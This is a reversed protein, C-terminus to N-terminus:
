QGDVIVTLKHIPRELCSVVGVRNGAADLRNTGLQIRVKRVRGDDSPIIEVVRALRWNSRHENQEHMIVVDGVKVDKKSSQWKRRSQLLAVYERRWREWFEDALAQVRRWRKSAYIDPDGFVGPPPLVSDKKMTLVHNPTLPLPGDPSELAEVSLPRSNVISMAEYFLTGLGSSSLCQGSRKLLGCLINRVTRILREWVGGMHSASPPNFRFVCQKKVLESVIKDRDLQKWAEKFERSAGVFNTGQDCWVQRINGRVSIVRRLGNIFADTSMDDLSEIHVARSALCTVILGYRKVYKRGDKVTFPGFCDMGCFSFPPAPEVREQPLDAMLQSAPVGRICLCKVCRHLVSMVARRIGLIWYGAARIKNITTARGQHAAEEHCCRIVLVTFHSERPLIIPHRQEVSDSSRKLRGGVRLTSDMRREANLEKMTRKISPSQEKFHEHQICTALRRETERLLSVEDLVIDKVALCKRVFVAMVKLMRGKSSFRACTNEFSITHSEAATTSLCSKVEVDHDPIDFVDNGKNMEVTQLFQPGELWTSQTLEDVSMGRSAYDAPNEESPVHNWQEPKSFDRIQQVRNAVFVHFRKSENQIYALVITSDTWFFHSMKAFDLEQQLFRAMKISLVAASLELRPITMYKMPAVRAKAVVLTSRVVNDKSIFRIYSCQGYGVTSADSFHHLEVTQEIDYDVPIFNRPITVQKIGTLEAIWEKWRAALLPPLEDDWGLGDKCLGQLILRGKLVFPALFGLPDYVSAITSLVGRRSNESAITPASFGLTDNEMSWQLGLTREVTGPASLTTLSSSAAVTVESAPFQGLFEKSNSIIKHLRLHGKECIERAKTLTQTASEVTANAHLGDDVYFDRQLFDSAEPSVSRHDKAIQKLGFNACGPSSVAGFIHVKMRYDRLPGTTDGGEWWLFRLFDRHPESVHFQHYMKEIDCAFAVPGKRFRCLVGSLSSILDPGQLLLDNLCVGHHKASCDFVVRIKGPKKPHYVGHHPIYWREKCEIENEPVLEADGRDLIVNMFKIYDIQYEPKKDFQRKLGLTRRMAAGRNDAVEPLEEKFPLPMEYHGAGNITVNKEIIELFKKDEQSLPAADSESFDKELVAILDACTAEIASCRYVHAVPSCHSPTVIVQYASGYADFAPEEATRGIVSWGLKTRVAFPTGQIVEEPMLAEANDYGILLGVSCEQRPLLESELRRLHEVSAVTHPTPISAPNLHLYPRSIAPSLRILDKGRAPRVQLGSYKKARVLVNDETVTSLRLMTDVHTVNIQEAVEEVVFTTDSMTDLLAYTLTEVEPRDIHSVYVPVVMSTLNSDKKNGQTKMTAKTDAVTVPIVNSAPANNDIKKDKEAARRNRQNKAYDPDHLCTPHRRSCEKCTEKDECEKYIHGQGLCGFCLGAKKVIENREAPPLRAFSRCEKIHHGIKECHRCVENAYINFTHGKSTGKGTEATGTTSKPVPPIGFVPDNIIDAEKELFKALDAFLLYKKHQTVAPHVMRAWRDQYREPLKSLVRKLTLPNDLDGLGGIEKAAVACQRLYDAYRRLGIPDRNRIVPWGELRTRFADAVMHAKGFRREILKMAEQFADATRLMFFGEIASRVEGGVYKRLYLMKQGSEIRQREILFEFASKWTPFHLADGTFVEPEQLPLRNIAMAEALTEAFSQKATLSAETLFNNGIDEDGPESQDQQSSSQDTTHNDAYTLNPQYSRTEVDNDAYIADPQSSRTEMDNDAYTSGPQSSRTEPCHRSVADHGSPLSSTHNAFRVHHEAPIGITASRPDQSRWTLRTEPRTSSSSLSLRGGSLVATSSVTHARLGSGSGSHLRSFTNIGIAAQTTVAPTCSPATLGAQVFTGAPSSSIFDRPQQEVPQQPAHKQAVSQQVQHTVDQDEDPTGTRATLWPTEKLLGVGAVKVKKQDSVYGDYGPLRQGEAVLDAQEYEELVKIMATNRKIKYETKQLEIDRLSEKKRLEFRALKAETDIDKAKREAEEYKLELEEHDLQALKANTTAESEKDVHLGAAEMLLREKTQSRTSARSSNSGAQSNQFGASSVSGSESSKRKSNMFYSLDEIEGTAAPWEIERATEIQLPHEFQVKSSSDRQENVKTQINALTEQVMQETNKWQEAITEELGIGYVQRQKDKLVQFAEQINTWDLLLVQDSSEIRLDNVATGVTKAVFKRQDSFSKVLQGEHFERGKETPNYPRVRRSVAVSEADDTPTPTFSPTEEKLKEM